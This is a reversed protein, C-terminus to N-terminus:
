QDPKLKSLLIFSAFTIALKTLKSTALKTLTFLLLSLSHDVCRAQCFSISQKIPLM